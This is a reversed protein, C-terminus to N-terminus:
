DAKPARPEDADRDRDALEKGLEALGREMRALQERVRRVDSGAPLNWLHLWEQSLSETTATLRARLKTAQALLDFYTDSRVASEVRTGVERELRHVLQLWRPQNQAMGSFTCM